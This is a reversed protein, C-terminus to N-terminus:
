NKFPNIIKLGVIGSFDRVNLSLLNHISNDLYTAALYTDFIQKKRSVEFLKYFVSLTTPLPSYVTFDFDSILDNVSKVVKKYDLKYYGILVRTAELINQQTIALKVKNKLLIKFLKLTPTFYPSKGDLLYIIFHSDFGWKGQWDTKISIM